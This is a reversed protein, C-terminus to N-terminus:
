TRRSALLEALEADRHLPDFGVVLRGGGPEFFALGVDVRSIVGGLLDGPNAAIRATDLLGFGPGDPDPGCVFDLDIGLNAAL